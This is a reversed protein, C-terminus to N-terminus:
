RLLLLKKECNAHDLILLDINELAKDLWEQPTPCLLFNNVPTILEQYPM